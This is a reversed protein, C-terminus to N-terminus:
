RRRYSIKKGFLSKSFYKKDLAAIKPSNKECERLLSYAYDINTEVGVGNAYIRELLLFGVAKQDPKSWTKQRVLRELLDVNKEMEQSNITSPDSLLRDVYLCWLYPHNDLGSRFAMEKQLERNGMYMASKSMNCYIDKELKDVRDPRYRVAKLASLKKKAEKLEEFWELATDETIDTSHDMFFAIKREIGRVYLEKCELRNPFVEYLDQMMITYRLYEEPTKASPILLDFTNLIEEPQQNKFHDFLMKRSKEDM